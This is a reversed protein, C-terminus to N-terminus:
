IIGLHETATNKFNSINGGRGVVSTDKKCLEYGHTKIGYWLRM